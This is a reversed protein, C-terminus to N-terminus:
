PNTSTTGNDILSDIYTRTATENFKRSIVVAKDGGIALLDKRATDIEMLESLILAERKMQKKINAIAEPRLDERLLKVMEQTPIAYDSDKALADLYLSMRKNMGFAIRESANSSLKQAEKEAEEQSTINAVQKRIFASTAAPSQSIYDSLSADVLGKRSNLYKEYNEPASLDGSKIESISKNGNRAHYVVEKMVKQNGSYMAQRSVSEPIKIIEKPSGRGNPTDFFERAEQGISADDGDGGFTFLSDKALINMDVIANNIENEINDCMNRLYKNASIVNKKLKFGHLPPLGECIDVSVDVDHLYGCIDLKALTKNNELVYCISMANDLTSSLGMLEGIVSNSVGNLWDNFFNQTNFSQANVNVCIFLLVAVILKKM